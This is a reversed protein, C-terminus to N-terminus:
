GARRRAGSRSIPERVAAAAGVDRDGANGAARSRNPSPFRIEIVRCRARGRTELLPAVDEVLQVPEVADVDVQRIKMGARERDGAEVEGSRRGGGGVM